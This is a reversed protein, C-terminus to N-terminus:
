LQIIAQRLDSLKKSSVRCCGGILRAGQILWDPSLTNVDEEANEIWTKSTACYGEGLNPYIVIEKDGCSNKINSILATIYKPKSCNVGLALVQPLDVFLSVAEEISSGDAIHNEDKCTFSVWVSIDKQEQILRKLAKAELFSPITEIALLDSLESLIEFRERHFSVLEDETLGYDGRYESGDALSAGYPGISAAVIPKLRNDKDSLAEYFTDCSEQALQYSKRILALAEDKSYGSAMLGKTSAQYSSSIICDAGVKLFATHAKKIAEPNEAILKASWLSHNLDHGQAELETSLGGDLILFGQKELFTSLPDTMM